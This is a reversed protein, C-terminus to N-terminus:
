VMPTWIDPVLPSQEMWGVVCSDGTWTVSPLREQERLRAQIGVPAGNTVISRNVANYTFSKAIVDSDFRHNALQM